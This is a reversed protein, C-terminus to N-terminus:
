RSPSPSPAPPPSPQVRNDNAIFVHISIQGKTLVTVGRPPSLGLTQVIDSTVGNLSVSDTDIETIAGVSGPDGEVEVVVPAYDIRSIRFGSPLSGVFNTHLPATRQVKTLDIPVTASVQSPSATVQPLPKHDPTEVQVTDTEQVQAQKGGVDVNVYAVASQLLSQPGKLKVTDPSTSFDHAQCCSAPTGQTRVEVKRDVIVLQDLEVDLVAPEPNRVSVTRDSNDIKVKILNHGAHAGGIDISAHLSERKFTSLSTQLGLVTVAVPDPEKLLVLGSPPPGHEVGLNKVTQSVPPNGAYAVVGWTSLALFVALVKFRWHRTILQV